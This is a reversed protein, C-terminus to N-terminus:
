FTYLQQFHKLHSFWGSPIKGNPYYKEVIQRYRGNAIITALAKRYKAAIEHAHPYEADLM